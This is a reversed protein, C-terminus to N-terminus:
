KNQKKKKVLFIALIVFTLVMVGIFVWPIITEETEAKAAAHESKEEQDATVHDHHEASAEESEEVSAGEVFVLQQLKM